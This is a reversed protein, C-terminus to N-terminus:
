ATVLLWTICVRCRPASHKGGPLGLPPMTPMTGARAYRAWSGAGGLAVWDLQLPGPASRGQRAAGWCQVCGPLCGSQVESGWAGGDRAPLPTSARPRCRRRRCQGRPAQPAAGALRAPGLREMSRGSASPPPLPRWGEVALFLLALTPGQPGRAAPRAGRRNPKTTQLM